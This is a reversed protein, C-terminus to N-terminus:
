RAAVPAKVADGIRQAFLEFADDTLAPLLGDADPARALEFWLTAGAEPLMVCPPDLPVRARVVLARLPRPLAEVAACSFVHFPELAAACAADVAYSAEVECLCRLSGPAAPADLGALEPQWAEKLAGAHRPDHTPVLWFRSGVGLEGPECTSLPRLLVVSDGRAVAEAVIAWERLVLRTM